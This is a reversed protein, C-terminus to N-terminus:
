KDKMENFVRNKSDKEKIIPIFEKVIIISVIIIVISIIIFLKNKNKM